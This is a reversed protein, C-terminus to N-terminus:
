PVDVRRGGGMMMPIGHLPGVFGSEAFAADLEDARELARPNVEVIANLAPGRKDYAEIRALYAEVLQRATLRGEQMADHIEAISAEVVDFEVPAREGPSTAPAPASRVIAAVALLCVVLPVRATRPLTM